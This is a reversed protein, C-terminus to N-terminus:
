VPTYTDELQPGLQKSGPSNEKQQGGLPKYSCKRCFCFVPFGELGSFRDEKRMNFYYKLSLDEVCHSKPSSELLM